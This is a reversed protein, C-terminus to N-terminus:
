IRNVKFESDNKFFQACFPGICRLCISLPSIIVGLVIKLSSIKEDKCSSENIFECTLLYPILCYLCIAIITSIWYTPHLISYIIISLLMLGRYAWLCNRATGEIWFWTKQVPTINLNHNKIYTQIDRWFRFSGKAWNQYQKISEYVTPAIECSDISPLPVINGRMTSLLYGLSLDDNKNITPVGGIQKLFSASIFCGHGICYVLPLIRNTDRAKKYITLLPYEFGISWQSQLVADDINFINKIGFRYLNHNYLSIQQFVYPLEKLSELYSDIMHHLITTTGYSPRSDVDYIGIYDITQISNTEHLFSLAYNLQGVKGKCNAPAEILQICSEKHENLYSMIIEYTSISSDDREHASTVYYCKEVYQSVFQSFFKLSDIITKQERYAPIIIYLNSHSQITNKQIQKHTYVQTISNISGIIHVMGGVIFYIICLSFVIM